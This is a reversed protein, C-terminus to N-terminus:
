LSTLTFVFVGCTRVAFGVFYDLLDFANQNLFWNVSSKWTFTSMLCVKMWSLKGQCRVLIGRISDFRIERWKSFWNCLFCFILTYMKVWFSIKYGFRFYSLRIFWKLHCRSNLLLFINAFIGVSLKQSGEVLIELLLLLLVLSIRIWIAKNVFKNLGSYGCDIIIVLAVRLMFIHWKSLSVVEYCSMWCDNTVM